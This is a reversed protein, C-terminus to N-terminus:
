ATRSVRAIPNIPMWGSGALMRAKEEPTMRGLLDEARQDPSLSANEYAPAAASPRGQLAIAPLVFVVGLGLILFLRAMTVESALRAAPEVQIM